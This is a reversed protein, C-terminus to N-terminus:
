KDLEARRQDLRRPRGASQPLIEHILHYAKRAHRFNPRGAGSSEGPNQQGPSGSTSAWREREQGQAPASRDLRSSPAVRSLV